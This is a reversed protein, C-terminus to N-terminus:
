VSVCLELETEKLFVFQFSNLLFEIYKPKNFWSKQLWQVNDPNGFYNFLGTEGELPYM